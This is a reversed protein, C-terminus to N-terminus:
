ETGDPEEPAALGLQEPTMHLIFIRYYLALSQMLVTEETQMKEIAIKSALESFETDSQATGVTFHPTGDFGFDITFIGGVDETFGICLKKLAQKVDDPLRDFQPNFFYKHNYHSAGCLTMEAM